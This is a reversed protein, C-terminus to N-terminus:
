WAHNRGKGEDDFLEQIRKARYLRQKLYVHRDYAFYKTGIDAPNIDTLIKRVDIIKKLVLDQVFLTKIQM